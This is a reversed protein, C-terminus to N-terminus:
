SLYERVKRVRETDHYKWIRPRKLNSNDNGIGYFDPYLLNKKDQLANEIIKMQEYLLKGLSTFSYIGEKNTKILGEEILASLSSYYQNRLDSSNIENISSMDIGNQNAYWISNLIFVSLENSLAKFIDVVNRL